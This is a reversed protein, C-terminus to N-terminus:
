GADRALAAQFTLYLSVAWAAHSPDDGAGQMPALIVVSTRTSPWVMLISTYGMWDGPHGLVTDDDIDVVSTGFGYGLEAQPDGDTMTAVLDPDIVRGGYLLYGWRALTPADAAMGAGGQGSSAGAVSPLYGSDPDVISHRASAATLAFPAQPKEGVQLWGRDLGAPDLLDRRLVTALPEGTVKEVVLGLIVYNLGNYRGPHGLLGVRTQKASMAVLDQATLARDRHAAVWRPLWRPLGPLGSTMTGLQRVTAGGTDFPLDVYDTVPADLDIAGRSALLLVEAAVFTKTVSAILFASTPQVARGAGDTGAAGVWAGDPTVVAAALGTVEGVYTHTAITSELARVVEPPFAGTGPDPWPASSSASGQTGSPADSKGCTTLAAAALAAVLLM